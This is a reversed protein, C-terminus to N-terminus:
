AVLELEDYFANRLVPRYGANLIAQRLAPASQQVPSDVGAMHYIREEEITGDLDDAGFRLAKQALELGFSIWYAKIHPFNDLFARAVAITKLTESETPGPLHRLRHAPKFPLPLFALFGGTEDQLDRLRRLHDVRDAYSEVHGFLMTATSRIGHRHATRHVHLWEDASEKGRCIQNRVAPAFIEAGGGTLCGLGASQLESLTAELSRKGIWGLHLIEIATFAKIAARPAAARIARLIELYFDFKWTPHLGGVMHIESAGHEHAAAAREAIEDVTLEYAGPDRRRKGFACFACELICINSYNIHRNVVYYARDGQRRDRERTAVASLAGLDDSEFLLLAERETLRTPPAAVGRLPDQPVLISNAVESEIM